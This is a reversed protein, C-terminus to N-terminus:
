YQNGEFVSVETGAHLAERDSSGRVHFTVSGWAPRKCAKGSLMLWGLKWDTTSRGPSVYRCSTLKTNLVWPWSM